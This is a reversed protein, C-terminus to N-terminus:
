LINMKYVQSPTTRFKSPNKVWSKLIDRSNADSSSRTFPTDMIIVPQPFHYMEQFDKAGFTDLQTGSVSRLVMTKPNTQSVIYHIMEACPFTPYRCSIRYLGSKHINVYVRCDEMNEEFTSSFTDNIDQWKMKIDKEIFLNKDEYIPFRMSVQDVADGNASEVTDQSGARKSAMTGTSSLPPCASIIGPSLSVSMSLFKDTSFWFLKLVSM